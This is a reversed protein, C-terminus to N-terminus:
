EERTMVVLDAAGDGDLDAAALQEGVRHFQHRGRIEVDAASTDGSTWREGGFWAYVAGTQVGGSEGTPNEGPAGAVLDDVGDGDLDAALVTTGLQGHGDTGKLVVDAGGEAFRDVIDGGIPVYRGYWVYVAGAVDGVGSADDGPAGVALDIRGDGDFDGAAISRGLEDGENTGALSVAPATLDAGEWIAVLGTSGGNETEARSVGVVLEAQEDDDLSGACWLASGLGIGGGQWGLPIAESFTGLASAYVRVQGRLPVGEGDEWESAVAADGVGDGDLDGCAAVASGLHGQPDDGRLAEAPDTTFLSGSPAAALDSWLWAEGLGAGSTGASTLPAGVILARRGDADLRTDLAAGFGTGAGVGYVTAAPVSDGQPIEALEPDAFDELVLRRAQYVAPLGVYVGDGDGELTWDNGLAAAGGISATPSGVELSAPSTLGTFLSLRGTTYNAGCSAGVCPQPCGLLLLIAPLM